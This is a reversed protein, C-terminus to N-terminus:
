GLVPCSLVAVVALATGAVAVPAVATLAFAAGFHFGRRAWGSGTPGGPRLRSLRLDVATNAMALSGDPFHAPQTSLVTLASRVTSPGYARAAFADAALEALERVAHPALRFLPVFPFVEALVDFTAIILHHRGRLHAREHALVASVETESLFQALGESAVIVGPRGALSFAVPRPHDIWWTQPDGCKSTSVMRLASLHSRRSRTRQSSRRVTVIATRIAAAALVVMGLLGAFIEIEPLAGHSLAQWCSQALSLFAPFRGHSPVLLLAVAAAASGFIAVASVAWATLLAAPDTRTTSSAILRRPLLWGVAVASLLLALAIIM